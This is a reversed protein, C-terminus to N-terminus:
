LEDVNKTIMSHQLTSTIVHKNTFNPIFKSLKNKSIKLIEPTFRPLNQLKLFRARNIHRLNRSVLCTIGQLREFLM